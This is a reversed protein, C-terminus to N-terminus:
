IYLKFLEFLFQKSHHLLYFSMFLTLNSVTQVIVHELHQSVVSHAVNPCFILFQGVGLYGTCESPAYGGRSPLSQHGHVSMAHLCVCVGGGVKIIIIFPISMEYILYM